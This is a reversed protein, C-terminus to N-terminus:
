HGPPFPTPPPATALLRRTTQLGWDDLEAIRDSVSRLGSYREVVEAWERRGAFSRRAVLCDADNVWFRGHQWARAVVCARGRLSRQDDETDTPHYTDPSVRMADVLGVSPLMPAGCGLLYSGPGVAERILALGSRYAAVGNLDEHREVDLAGTFLFDLKFYDFGAERLRGFVSSLYTRAGPHTVDLGLLDHGWNHGAAGALWDPHERALVSHAAVTFPALWIGARRGSDRIRAAVDGMSSFRGSTQMWDGVCSEWGDDIQVVDVPLRHDVIASLNEVIDGETVDDFYHYWSCWVTPAARPPNARVQAASEEGYRALGAEIGGAVVQGTAPGNSSVVLRNGRLQARISPVEQRADPAAYLRTPGGTGPNVVLLGEAQYGRRPAPTEPRFRMPHQWGREPRPSTETVPYTSTPSWSQWGHEYVMGREPSVDVEDIASFTV